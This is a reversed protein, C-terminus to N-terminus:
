GGPCVGVFGEGIRGPERAERTDIVERGDIPRRMAGPVVLDVGVVAIVPCGIEADRDAPLEGVM